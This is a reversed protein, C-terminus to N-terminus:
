FNYDDHSPSGIAALRLQIKYLYDKQTSLEVVEDQHGDLRLLLRDPASGQQYRRQMPTRGLPEGSPLLLVRANPPESVISVTVMQRPGPPQAAKDSSTYALTRLSGHGLALGAVFLCLALATWRWRQPQRTPLAALRQLAVYVEEADPRAGPQKDLMRHILSALPGPVHPALSRLAPPETCLHLSFLDRQQEANFPVQGSLAQFLIIGLSYIDAKETVTSSDLCQEPAMYLPTGMITHNRTKMHTTKQNLNPWEHLTAILKAIGFDMIKTRERGPVDPDQVIMINDPKLDRHIVGKQHAAALASALLSGLRLTEEIDLRKLNGLRHSLLEGSLYEMVIYISGDSTQGHDTIQVIGPHTTRNSARAENLLRGVLEPTQAWQSNLIKIAVRREIDQYLAEYVIGMGGKGIERSIQYKGLQGGPVMVRRQSSGIRFAQTLSTPLLSGTKSWRHLGALSGGDLAEPAAFLYTGLM